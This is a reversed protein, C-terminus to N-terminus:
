RTAYITQRDPNQDMYKHHVVAYQAEAFRIVHWIGGKRKHKKDAEAMAKQYTPYFFEHHTASNLKDQWHKGLKIRYIIAKWIIRFYKM